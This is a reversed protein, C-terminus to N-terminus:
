RLADRLQLQLRLPPPHATRHGCEGGCIAAGLIALVVCLFLTREGDYLPHPIDGACEM